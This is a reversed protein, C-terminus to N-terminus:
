KTSASATVQRDFRQCRQESTLGHAECWLALQVHASASQSARAQATKYAERSAATAEAPQRGNGLIVACCLMIAHVM